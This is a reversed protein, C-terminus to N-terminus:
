ALRRHGLRGFYIATAQDDVDLSQSSQPGTGPWGGADTVAVTGAPNQLDALSRGETINNPLNLNAYYAYSSRYPTVGTPFWYTGPNTTAPTPDSPCVM